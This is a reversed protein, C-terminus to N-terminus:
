HAGTGIIETAPGGGEQWRGAGRCGVTQGPGVAEGGRQQAGCVRPDDVGLAGPPASSALGLGERTSLQVVGM